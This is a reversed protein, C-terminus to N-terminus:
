SFGLLFTGVRLLTKRLPQLRMGSHACQRRQGEHQDDASRIPKLAALPDRAVPVPAM